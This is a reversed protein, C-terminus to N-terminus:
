KKNLISAKEKEFEEVSLIGKEKLDNLKELKELDNLSMKENESNLNETEYVLALVLAIIWTVGTLLSVWSLVSIIRLKSGTINRDKAITIPLRICFIFLYVLIPIIVLAFLGLIGKM